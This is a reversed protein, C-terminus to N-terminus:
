IPKSLPAQKVRKHKHFGQSANVIRTSLGGLEQAKSTTTPM